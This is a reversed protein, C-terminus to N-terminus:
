LLVLVTPAAILLTKFAESLILLWTIMAITIITNKM